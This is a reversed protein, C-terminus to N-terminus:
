IKVFKLTKSEKSNNNILDLFYLGAQLFSVDIKSQKGAKNVEKGTSNWIKIQDYRFDTVIDLFSTTPNPYLMAKESSALDNSQTLGISMPDFKVIFSEKVYAVNGVNDIIKGYVGILVIEGNPLEIIIQPSMYNIGSVLFEKLIRDQGGKSHIMQVLCRAKSDVLSVQSRVALRGKNERLVLSAYNYNFNEDFNIEDIKEYNENFYYLDFTTAGGPFTNRAEIEIEHNQIKSLALSEVKPIPLLIEQEDYKEWKQSFTSIFIQSDDTSDAKYYQLTTITDSYFSSYQSKDLKTDFRIFSTDLLISSNDTEYANCGYGPINYHLKGIFYYQYSNEVPRIKTLTYFNKFSAVGPNKPDGYTYSILHGNSPDIKHVAITGDFWGVLDNLPVSRRYSLIELLGEKNLYIFNPSHHFETNKLDYTFQWMKKGTTLDIKEVFFGSGFDEINAMLNYIYNGDIFYRVYSLHGKGDKKLAVNINTSDIFLHSWTTSQNEFSLNSNQSFVNILSLLFLPLLYKKM